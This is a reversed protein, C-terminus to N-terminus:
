YCRSDMCYEINFAYSIERLHLIEKHLICIEKILYCSIRHKGHELLVPIACM